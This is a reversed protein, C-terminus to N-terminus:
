SFKGNHHAFDPLAELIRVNHGKRYCELAATLGGLGGGVILIDIGTPPYRQLTSAEPFSDTVTM